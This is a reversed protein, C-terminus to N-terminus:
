LVSAKLCLEEVAVAEINSVIGIHVGRKGKESRSLSTAKMTFTREEEEINYDGCVCGMM